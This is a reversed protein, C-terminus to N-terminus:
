LVCLDKPYPTLYEFGEDSLIISDGVRAGFKWPVTIGGDVAFTMGTQLHTKDGAKLEPKEFFSCGISRGTRYGPEFGADRYIAAAAFHVDEATVGPRIAELAASQAKVAIEYAMAQEDTVSDVFFERDFGLKYQKFNTIGCFCLYVPDGRQIRRVSSRRHVMSTEHGSQLAQLNHITPSFFGEMQADTLFEAAKRTGSAIVALAVEYEPVGAGIIGQAAEVMAIAIQGAQRMVEIEEPSKIMRMAGLLWGVDVCNAHTLEDHLFKSILQPILMQEIGLTLMKRNGTLDRLPRMWDDQAGDTWARVDEIWTMNRCMESEMLPTIITCDGSHPVFLMTPRGFEVGLYGWYGSIYYISDPDTLLVADITEDTMRRQLEIARQILHSHM